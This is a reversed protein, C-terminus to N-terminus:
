EEERLALGKPRRRYYASLLGAVGMLATGLWVLITMPKYFIQVPYIANKFEAKLTVSRTAADMQGVSISLDDTLDVPHERMGKDTLEISPNIDWSKDGDKVHLLAGFQAGPTGPTGKQTMKTYTLVFRDMTVSGGLPVTMEGEGSAPPQLAFYVDYLAHHQIYPWVMTEPQQGDGKDIVYLGPSATWHEAGRKLDFLITNNRDSLSSTPGKYTVTYGLGVDPVNKQVQIVQKQELGRSIILGAMLTAVGIHAMFAAASFKSRKFLEGIRFLNAVIVAASLSVLLVIWIRIPVEIHLPLRVTEGTLARVSPSFAMTIMALGVIFITVCAVGFVRKLFANLGMGRWATLPAAAMVLMLPVYAWTLVQHYVGEEVVRPKQGMLGMVFPVSMGIAAGIGLVSLLVTAVRHWRERSIGPNPPDPDPNSRFFQVTRTIWLTFFLGASGIMIALLVKLAVTNMEAFSHVSTDGLLGSRTLFTGYVFLVFPLGGLLLNLIKWSKKTVQVMVGHVFAVTFIWPVFSTNEVPDWMWFGGWGLTEYAWFGGMCLGVGVLSMSVIAWPRVMPIWEVYRKTILASMAYAFMVTLSGFGMFITPPHITVWYNLLSPALGLGSAPVVPVGNLQNLAFPTEYSLIGALSGLFVAYIITFWRRYQGTGRVALIGFLASTCAWLLFSGQQGSWIGAIRYQIPNAGDGHQWIYEYELRNQAFLIGLVIFTGFLSLAGLTFSWKAPKELKPLRPSLLWGLAAFAYLAIAMWVFVRGAEGLDLSWNPPKILISASEDM